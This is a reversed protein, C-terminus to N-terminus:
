RSPTEPRRLATPPKDSAPDPPTPAITALFRDCLERGLQNWEGLRLRTQERLAETDVGIGLADPDTRTEGIWREVDAASVEAHFQIGWAAEGLRYAQACVSTCALVTAHEPVGCEYSHYEFAEFAPALPGLLPDGFGAETVGVELWGIEPERGRSATGGAAESLLQAGLCVGLLPMGRELLECLLAKEDALWPHLDDHDAHMSGGFSMVADYSRPDAPPEDTEARYWLDLEGRARIPETFVGPGADRQHVIALTRM